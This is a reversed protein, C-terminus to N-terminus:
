SRQKRREKIDALFDDRSVSSGAAIDDLGRAIKAKAYATWREQEELKRLSARVVESASSYRGAAVIDEVFQELEPTLSVNM